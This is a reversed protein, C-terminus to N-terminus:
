AGSKVGSEECLLRCRDQCLPNEDRELDRLRDKLTGVEEVLRQKEAKRELYRRREDEQLSSVDDLRKELDELERKM